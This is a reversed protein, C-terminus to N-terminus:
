FIETWFHRKADKVMLRTKGGSRVHDARKLPFVVIKQFCSDWEFVAVRERPKENRPYM